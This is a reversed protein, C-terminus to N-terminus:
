GTEGLRFSLLERPREAKLTKACVVAAVSAALGWPTEVGELCMLSTAPTEGQPAGVRKAKRGQSRVREEVVGSGSTIPERERGHADDGIVGVLILPDAVPPM